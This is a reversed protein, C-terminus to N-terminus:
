DLGFDDTQGDPLITAGERREEGITVETEIIMWEDPPPLSALPKEPVAAALIHCHEDDDGLWRQADNQCSVNDDEDDNDNHEDVNHALIKATVLQHRQQQHGVGAEHYQGVGAEHYQGVDDERYQGVEDQQYQGVEDDRYQGVDDGNNNNNNYQKFKNTNTSSLEPQTQRRPPCLLEADDLLDM